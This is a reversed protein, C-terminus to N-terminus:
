KCNKLRRERGRVIRWLKLRWNCIVLNLGRSILALVRDKLFWSIGM